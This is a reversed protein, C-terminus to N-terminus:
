PCQRKIEALRERDLQTLGGIAALEALEMAERALVRAADRQMLAVKAQQVPTLGGPRVLHIEARDFPSILGDFGIAVYNKAKTTDARQQLTRLAAMLMEYVFMAMQEKPLDAPPPEFDDSFPDTTTM